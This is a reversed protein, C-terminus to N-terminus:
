ICITISKTKANIEPSSVIRAGQTQGNSGITSEADLVPPLLLDRPIVSPIINLKPKKVKDREYRTLRKCKSGSKSLITLTTIKTINPTVSTTGAIPSTTSLQIELNPPINPLLLRDPPNQFPNTVPNDRPITQVGQAPGIKAVIAVNAAECVTEVERIITVM